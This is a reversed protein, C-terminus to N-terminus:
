RVYLVKKVETHVWIHGNQGCKLNALTPVPHVGLRTSGCTSIQGLLRYKDDNRLYEVRSTTPGAHGAGSGATPHKQSM